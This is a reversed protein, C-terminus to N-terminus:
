GPRLFAEFVVFRPPAAPTEQARAPGAHLLAALVFLAPLWRICLRFRTM